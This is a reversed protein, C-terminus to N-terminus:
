YQQIWAGAAVGQLARNKERAAEVMLRTESPFFDGWM